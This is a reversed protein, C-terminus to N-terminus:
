DCEKEKWKYPTPEYRRKQLEYDLQMFSAPSDASQEFKRVLLNCSREEEVQEDVFWALTNSTAFDNEGQAKLMINNVSKTVVQEQQQAERFMDLVTPWDTPVAAVSLLRVREDQAMLYKQLIRSHDLEELSQVYFWNSVGRYGYAEAQLSMSLYLYSSWIEANIQDNIMKTIEMSIM